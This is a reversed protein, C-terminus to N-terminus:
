TLPTFSSSSSAFPPVTPRFSLLSSTTSSTQTL